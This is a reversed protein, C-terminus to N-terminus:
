LFIDLIFKMKVTMYDSVHWGARLVNNGSSRRRHSAPSSVTATSPVAAVGGGGNFNSNVALFNSDGFQHLYTDVLTQRYENPNTDGYMMSHEYLHTNM